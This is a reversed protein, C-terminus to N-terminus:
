LVISLFQRSKRTAVALHSAISRSSEEADPNTDFNYKDDTVEVKLNVKSMSCPNVAIAMPTQPMEGRTLTKGKMFM